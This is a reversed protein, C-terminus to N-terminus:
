EIKRKRNQRTEIYIKEKTKMDGKWLMKMERATARNTNNEMIKM